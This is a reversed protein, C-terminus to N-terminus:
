WEVVTWPNSGCGPGDTEDCTYTGVCGISDPSCGISLPTTSHGQVTGRTVPTSAAEFSEVRLTDLELKLKKM